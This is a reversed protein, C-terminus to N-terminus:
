DKSFIRFAGEGLYEASVKENLEIADAGLVSYYHLLYKERTLIEKRSAWETIAVVLSGFSFIPGPHLQIYQILTPGNFRSVMVTPPGFIITFFGVLCIAIGLCTALRSFFVDVPDRDLTSELYDAYDEDFTEVVYEGPLNDVLVQWKSAVGQHEQM